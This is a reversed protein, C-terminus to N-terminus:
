ADLFEELALGKLPAHVLNAVWWVARQEGARSELVSHNVAVESVTWAALGRGVHRVRTGIPFERRMRLIKHVVEDLHEDHNTM